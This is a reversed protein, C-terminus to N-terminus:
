RRGPKALFVALSPTEMNLERSSAMAHSLADAAVASAAEDEEEEEEEEEVEEEEEEEAAADAAERM